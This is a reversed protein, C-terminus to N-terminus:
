LSSQEKKAKETEIWQQDAESLKSEHTKGKTGDAEILWLNGEHYRVLKAFVQRDQVDIWMRYGKRELRQRWKGYDLMAFHHAADIKEKTSRSRGSSYGVIKDLVKGSPSMMLIVPNGLVKYRKRLKEIYALKATRGAEDKGIATDLRLLVVNQKAWELFETKGFLENGLAKCNQSRASNTFWMLVPKGRSRAAKLAQSYSVEWDDKKKQSPAVNEFGPIPISEDEPAWVIDEEAPLQDISIQPSVGGGIFGNSRPNAILGAPANALAESTQTARKKQIASCATLSACALVAMSKLVVSKQSLPHRRM